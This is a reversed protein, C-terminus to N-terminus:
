FYLLCLTYLYYMITPLLISNVRDLIGGHSQLINSTDKLHNLRKIKSMLLDGLIALICLIVSHYIKVHPLITYQLLLGFLICSVLSGIAGEITKRPSIRPALKYHGFNRGIVYGAIDAIQAYLIIIHVFSITIINYINIDYPMSSTSILFLTLYCSLFALYGMHIKSMYFMYLIELIASIFIIYVLYSYCMISIATILLFIKIRNQM